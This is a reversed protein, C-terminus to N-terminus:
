PASETAADVAVIEFPEDSMRQSVTSLPNRQCELSTRAFYKGPAQRGPIMFGLDSTGYRDTPMGLSAYNQIPFVTGTTRSVIASAARM